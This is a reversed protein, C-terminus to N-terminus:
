SWLRVTLGDPSSHLELRATLQRAIWLGARDAALPQPPLYGALPDDLGPGADTVECVFQEGVRGVRLSRVGHGYREANSLVERAAVLMDRARGAPLSAAALEDAIREELTRTGALPLPRLEPMPVFTPTLSQVLVDPEVFDPSVQWARDHVVRHTKRALELALEPVVRTDYGCMLTPRQDAFAVNVIAEYSMWAHWEANSCCTPLEGYVRLNPAAPDSAARVAEDLSALAAAPHLYYQGHGVFSILEADTGLMDRLIAQKPEPLFVTVQEDAMLGALLYPEIQSAFAEDSEYVLLDHRIATEV